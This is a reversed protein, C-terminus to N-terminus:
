VSCITPLTLHTYSVSVTITLPTEEATSTDVIATMVPADNVPTITLTYIEVDSLNDVGSDTVRVTIEVDGHFNTSPVLDYTSGSLNGSLNEVSVDSPSSSEVTITHTDSPDHNDVDSFEVSLATLTEEENTSQPGIDTLVPADNVNNVTVGFSTEDTLRSGM